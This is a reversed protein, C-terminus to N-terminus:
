LETVTVAKLFSALQTNFHYSLRTFYYTKFIHITFVWVLNAILLLNVYENEFFGNVNGFRLLYAVLFSFNLLAVDLWLHVKHLLGPYHNKM